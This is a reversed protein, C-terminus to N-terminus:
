ALASFRENLLKAALVPSGNAVGLLLLVGLLLPAALM